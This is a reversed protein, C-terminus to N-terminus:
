WDSALMDLLEIGRGTTAEHSQRRRIPGRVSGDTVSVRVGGDVRSVKVTLDTRAHLVANTVVESTLLAVTDSLEVLEWEDLAAVVFRRAETTSRATAPLRLSRPDPGSM